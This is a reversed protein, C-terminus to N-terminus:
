FLLVTAVWPDLAAWNCWSIFGPLVLSPLYCWTKLHYHRTLPCPLTADTRCPWQFAIHALTGSLFYIYDRILKITCSPSFPPIDQRLTLQSIVLCGPIVLVLCFLAGISFFGLLPPPTDCMWAAWPLGPWPLPLVAAWVTLPLVHVLAM